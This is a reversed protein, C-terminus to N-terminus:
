EREIEKPVVKKKFTVIYKQPRGNGDHDATGPTSTMELEPHAELFAALDEAFTDGHRFVQNYPFVWVNEHLQYPGPPQQNKENKITSVIPIVIAALLAIIGIVVLLEVLTFAKRKM